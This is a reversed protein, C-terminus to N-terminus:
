KKDFRGLPKVIGEFKRCDWSGDENIKYGIEPLMFICKIKAGTVGSPKESHRCRKCNEVSIKM